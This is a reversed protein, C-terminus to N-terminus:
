HASLNAVLNIHMQPVRAGWLLLVLMLFFLTELKM